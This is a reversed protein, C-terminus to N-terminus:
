LCLACRILGELEQTKVALVTPSRRSHNPVWFEYSEELTVKVFETESFKFSTDYDHFPVNEAVLTTRYHTKVSRHDKTIHSLMNM